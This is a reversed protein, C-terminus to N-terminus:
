ASLTLPTDAAAIQDQWSSTSTLDALYAKRARSGPARPDPEDVEEFRSAFYAQLANLGESRIQSARAETVGLVEAIDRLYEERFYYRIVVERQVRPLRDIALRLTGTLERRELVSEPLAEADREVILDGLTADDASGPGGPGVHQDLHLLSANVAAARVDEVRRRTIGLHAAVEENTPAAGERALHETAERVERMGRRAGRTAWDRSRTSDIIAGRVRIMAYRAFPIGQDPDFRRSADVLGAAGANWLEDRDVHRPYRAALQNVAHQVLGLNDLVLHDREHRPSPVSM